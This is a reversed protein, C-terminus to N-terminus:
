VPQTNKDTYGSTKLMNSTAEIFKNAEEEVEALNVHVISDVESQTVSNGATKVRNLTEERYKIKQNIQVKLYQALNSYSTNAYHTM